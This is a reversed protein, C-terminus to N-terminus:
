HAESVPSNAGGWRTGVRGQAMGWAERLWGLVEDDVDAESGLVLHHTFRGPRPEVAQRIRESALRCPLDFTLVVAEDSIGKVGEPPRWMWCFRTGGQARFSVQSRTVAVEVLGFGQLVERVHHYMRVANPYGAFLDEVSQV